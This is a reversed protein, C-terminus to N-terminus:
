RLPIELIRNDWEETESAAWILLLWDAVEAIPTRQSVLLVGPSRGRAVLFEGFHWPMTHLDHTVLIRGQHAALALVEPDSVGELKADVASLFDMAPERRLCAAVIDHNLSADALFRVM